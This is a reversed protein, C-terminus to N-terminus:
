SCVGGGPASGRGPASVGKPASGGPASVGGHVSDCVGTFIYGQGLKTAPPLLNEEGVEVAELVGQQYMQTGSYLIHEAFFRTFSKIKDVGIQLIYINSVSM